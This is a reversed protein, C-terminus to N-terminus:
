SLFLVHPETDDPPVEEVEPPFVMHGFNGFFDLANWWAPWFMSQFEHNMRLRCMCRYMPFIRSLSKKFREVHELEAKYDLIIEQLEKPLTEM